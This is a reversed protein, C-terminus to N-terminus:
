DKYMVAVPQYCIWIDDFVDPNKGDEIIWAHMARSPLFVGIFLFRKNDISRTTCSSFLSRPLCLDQQEGPYLKRYFLIAEETTSFVRFHCLSLVRVFLFSKRCLFTYTKALFMAFPFNKVQIKSYSVHINVKLAYPNSVQALASNIEKPENNRRSRNSTYELLFGFTKHLSYVKDRFKAELILIKM